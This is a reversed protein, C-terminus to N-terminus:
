AQQHPISPSLASYVTAVLDGNASATATLKLPVGGSVGQSSYILPDDIEISDKAPVAKYYFQNSAGDNWFLSVDCANSPDINTIRIKIVRYLANGVTATIDVGGTTIATTKPPQPVGDWNFVSSM